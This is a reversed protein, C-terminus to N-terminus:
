HKVVGQLELELSDSAKKQITHVSMTHVVRGEGM